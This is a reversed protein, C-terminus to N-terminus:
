PAYMSQEGRLTERLLLTGGVLLLLQAALVWQNLVLLWVAILLVVIPFFWRNRGMLTCVIRCVVFVCLWVALTIGLAIANRVFAAQISQATIALDGRATVFRYETGRHPIDLTLSAFGTVIFNVTPDDVNGGGMM